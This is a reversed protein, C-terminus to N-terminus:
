EQGEPFLQDMMYDFGAALICAVTVAAVLWYMAAPLPLSSFYDAM